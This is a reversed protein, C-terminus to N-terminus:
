QWAAVPESFSPSLPQSRQSRELPYGEVDCLAVYHLGMSSVTWLVSLLAELETGGATYVLTKNKPKKTCPILSLAKYIDLGCEVM